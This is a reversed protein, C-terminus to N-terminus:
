VFRMLVGIASTHTLIESMTLLTAMLSLCQRLQKARWHTQLCSFYILHLMEPARQTNQRQAVDAGLAGPIGRTNARQLDFDSQSDFCLSKRENTFRSCSRRESEPFNSGPSFRLKKPGVPTLNDAPPALPPTATDNSISKSAATRWKRDVNHRWGISSVATRHPCRARTNLDVESFIRLAQARCVRRRPRDIGDAAAAAM